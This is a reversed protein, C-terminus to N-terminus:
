QVLQVMVVLALRTQLQLMVVLPVLGAAAVLAITVAALLMAVMVEKGQHQREAQTPQRDSVVQEVEQVVVVVLMQEALLLRAMVAVSQLLAASFLIMGMSAQVIQLLKDVREVLV